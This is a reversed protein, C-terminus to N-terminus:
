SNWQIMKIIHIMKNLEYHITKSKHFISNCQVRKNDSTGGAFRAVESSSCVFALYGRGWVVDKLVWLCTREAGGMEWWRSSRQVGRKRPPIGVPLISGSKSAGINLWFQVDIYVFIYLALKHTWANKWMKGLIWIIQVVWVGCSSTPPWMWTSTSGMKAWGFNIIAM